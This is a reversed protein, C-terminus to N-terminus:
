SKLKNRPLTFSLIILRTKAFQAPEFLLLDASAMTLWGQEIIIPRVKSGYYWLAQKKKHVLEKGRDKKLHLVNALLRQLPTVNRFM